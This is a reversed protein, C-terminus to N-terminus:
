FALDSDKFDLLQKEVYASMMDIYVDFESCLLHGLYLHSYENLIMM